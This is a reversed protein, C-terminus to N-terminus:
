TSSRTSEARIARAGASLRVGQLRLEVHPQQFNSVELTFVLDHPADAEARLREVLDGRGWWVARPCGDSFSLSLHRGEQGLPKVDALRAGRVAFVPEPNGEGFPEFREVERALEITLDAPDVFADVGVVGKESEPIGREQSACVAAFDRAFAEEHGAVVGLGAAVAHGGFHSLHAACSEFADRLNYGSPARASGKGDVLVCVPSTGGLREMVRAAVIGAVGPHVMPDSGDLFLSQGAAGPRVREMAMETMAHEYRKRVASCEDVIRALERARERDSGLMLGLPADMATGFRGEIRGVANIRPGILFGFDRASMRPSAARSVRDYLERLGIPAWSRFHSLAESVLVRNQGSLPMIDTVTALGAMVFIRGSIGAALNPDGVDSRAAEVLARAFMYAVGAGCLWELRAPAAVKPNVLADAAPLEEGPLHHDTVVVAIGRAKLASVPGVANIGNDVTVVLAVQPHESLMRAVSADTMGYGEDARRPIFPSVDAGLAGLATVLIATACVGDCDYDGFVVIPSHARVFPMAAAVAAAVGPLESPAALDRHSPTLYSGVNGPSVGRLALLRAALPSFGAAVLEDVSRGDVAKEVWSKEM